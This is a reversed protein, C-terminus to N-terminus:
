EGLHNHHWQNREARGRHGPHLRHYRGRQRQPHYRRPQARHKWRRQRQRGGWQRQQPRDHHRRLVPQGPNFQVRALQLCRRGAVPRDPLQERQQRCRVSAPQDAPRQSRGQPHRRGITTAGTYTYAGASGTATWTGPGFKVLTEFVTTSNPALISGVTNGTSTGGLNFNNSTTYNTFTGIALNATTPIPLALGTERLTTVALTYGNSSTFNEWGGSTGQSGSLNNLTIVTGASGTTVPDVDIIGTQFTSISSGVAYPSGSDNATVFTAPSNSELKLTPIMGFINGLNIRDYQIANTNQLIITGANINFQEASTQGLTAQGLTNANTLTWVGPTRPPSTSWVTRGGNPGDSIVGNIVNNQALGGLALSSTITSSGSYVSEGIIDGLILNATTPIFTWSGNVLGGPIISNAISIAPSGSTVNPGSTFIMSQNVGDGASLTGLHYTVGAGPTSRDSSLIGFTGDNFINYLSANGAADTNYAFDVTQFLPLTPTPTMSYLWLVNTSTNATPLTANGAAQNNALVLTGNYVAVHGTFAAPQTLTLSGAGQKVIGATDSADLGTNFVVNNGNTDLGIAVNSNKIRGSIDQVNGAAWQLTGGSISGEVAAQNTLTVGGFTLNGTTGLAGSAFDLVGGALYTGGTYSNNKNTLYTIPTLSAIQTGTVNYQAGDKVVATPSGNDAIQSAIILAGDSQNRGATVEWNTNGTTIGANNFTHLYITNDAGAELTGGTITSTYTGKGTSVLIGGSSLVNIGSLTVSSNSSNGVGDGFRLSNTTSAATIVENASGINANTNLGAGWGSNLTNTSDNYSALPTVFGAGSSNSNTAWDYSSTGNAGGTGTINAVTAWGGLIGNVNANSLTYGNTATLGGASPVPIVSAPNGTGPYNNTPEAFNVTGGPNVAITGLNLVVNNTPSANCIQLLAGPNVTFSNFTQSDFTSAVNQGVVRLVSGVIMPSAPNIINSTTGGASNFTSGAFPAISTPSFDLTFSGGSVNTTGTYTNAGALTFNSIDLKTIGVTSLAGNSINGYIINSNSGSAGEGDLTLLVSGSVASNVTIPGTFDLGNGNYFDSKFEATNGELIVPASITECAGSQGLWNQAVLITGGDSLGLPIPGNADNNPIPSSGLIGGIVYGDLANNSSASTLDFTIGGIVIGPLGPTANAPLLIQLQATGGINGDRDFTAVDSSSTGSLAGPMGNNWDFADIWNHTGTYPPNNGYIDTQTWTSSAAMARGSLASVALAAAAGVAAKSLWPQSGKSRGSFASRSRQVALKSSGLM